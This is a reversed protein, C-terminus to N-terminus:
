RDAVSAERDENLDLSGVGVEDLTIPVSIACPAGALFKRTTDCLKLRIAFLPQDRAALERVGIPSGLAVDRRGLWLASRIPWVFLIAFSRSCRSDKSGNRR